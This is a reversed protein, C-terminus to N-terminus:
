VLFEWREAMVDGRSQFAVQRENTQASQDLELRRWQEDCRDRKVTVNLTLFHCRADSSSLSDLSANPDSSSRTVIQLTDRLSSYLCSAKEGIVLIRVLWNHTDRAPMFNSVREMVLVRYIFVLPYKRVLDGAGDGVSSHALDERAARSGRTPTNDNQDPPVEDRTCRERRSLHAPSRVQRAAPSTFSEDGILARAQTPPSASWEWECLIAPHPPCMRSHVDNKKRRSTTTPHPRANPRKFTFMHGHPLTSTSKHVHVQPRPSTSPCPSISTSMHVQVHPRPHPIHFSLRIVHTGIVNSFGVTGSKFDMWWVRSERVSM